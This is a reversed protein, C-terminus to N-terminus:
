RRLYAVDKKRKLEHAEQETLGVFETTTFSLEDPYFSLIKKETGDDFTAIVEPMPDLMGAPMPRPMATFTASVIKPDTSAM